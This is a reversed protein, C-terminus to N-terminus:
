AAPPETLPASRRSSMASVLTAPFIQVSFFASIDPAVHDVKTACACHHHVAASPASGNDSGGSQKKLVPQTDSADSEHVDIMENAHMLSGNGGHALAPAVTSGFLVAILVLFALFHRRMAVHNAHVANLFLYNM